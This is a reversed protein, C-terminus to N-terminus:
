GRDLVKDYLDLLEGTIKQSSFLALARARATEGMKQRFDKNEICILLNHTLSPVDGSSYLLGTEGEAVADVIGYIRTAVTPIGAAAAEIIVQGFGERYSPLCFIDVMAMYREPEPTFSVRRLQHSCVRCIERVSEFPVDEEAGVLALVVDSRHAAIEAFAAALDLVGKDRNLRGLFLIVTQAEDIGLQKRMAKRAALDPHFRRADVGCISGHGLVQAKDKGVIGEAVLFDRQSPSDVLIQTAFLVILRDFLKLTSRKWGRRTAWVQGTFTHLRNPVGSLWAAMMSLLGTKPMISHVLEFRERRFLRLLQLLTCLDRWPSIKREFPIPIFQADLDSLLEAGQPHTCIKVSWKEGCARIHGKLFSHVVAPITATFCIKKM